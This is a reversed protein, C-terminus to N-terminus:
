VTTHPHSEHGSNGDSMDRSFEPDIDMALLVFLATVSLKKRLSYEYAANLRGFFIDFSPRVLVAAIAGGRLTRM